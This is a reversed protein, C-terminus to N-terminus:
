NMCFPLSMIQKFSYAFFHYISITRPFFFIQNQEHPAHMVTAAYKFPCLVKVQDFAAARAYSNVGNVLGTKWLM